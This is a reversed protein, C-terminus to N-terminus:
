EQRPVSIQRIGLVVAVATLGGVAGFMLHTLLPYGLGAWFSSYFIGTSLSIIARLLPKTIAALGGLSILFLAKTRWAPLYTFAFDIVLGPLLYELWIFPDDLAGWLPLMSFAAASASALSGAYRNHAMCRGVILIAMWELGHRGPLLLPFRLIQHLTVILAGSGILLLAERMTISRTLETPFSNLLKKQWSIGTTSSM